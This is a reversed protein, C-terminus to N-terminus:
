CAVLVQLLLAQQRFGQDADLCFHHKSYVFSPFPKVKRFNLKTFTQNEMQYYQMNRNGNAMYTM